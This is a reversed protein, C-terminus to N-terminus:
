GQGYYKGNGNKREFHKELIKDNLEEALPRVALTLYAMEAILELVYARELAKEITEGWVFVGHNSVLAASIDFHNIDNEKFYSIIAKGTTKEYSEKDNWNPIPVAPIPGNFYDAHTTGLCPISKSLQAFVTAYKSHTHVVSGIGTFGEYLEIHAPTDVSPRLGSVSLGDLNVRSIDSAKISNLDVGSPKIYIEENVRVSVNGWTLSVLKKDVIWKNAQLIQSKINSM